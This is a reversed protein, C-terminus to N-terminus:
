RTWTLKFEQDFWLEAMYETGAQAKFYTYEYHNNRMWDWFEFFSLEINPKNDYGKEKRWVHCLRRIAKEADDKKM